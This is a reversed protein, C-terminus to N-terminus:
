EPLNIIGADTELEALSIEKGNKKVCDLRACFNDIYPGVTNQIRYAWKYAEQPSETFGSFSLESSRDFFSFEIEYQM